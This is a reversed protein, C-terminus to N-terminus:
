PSEGEATDRGDRPGARGGPLAEAARPTDLCSYRLSGDPMRRVVTAHRFREGFRITQLGDPRQERELGQTSRSLKGRLEDLMEGDTRLRFAAKPRRTAGAIDTEPERGDPSRRGTEGGMENRVVAARSAGDDQREPAAAAGEAAGGADCGVLLLFLLSIRDAKM